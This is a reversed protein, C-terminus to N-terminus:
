PRRESGDTSEFRRHMLAQSDTRWKRTVMARGNKEATWLRSAWQQASACIYAIDEWWGRSETQTFCNKLWRATLAAAFVSINEIYALHLTFATGTIRRDYHTCLAPQFLRDSCLRLVLLFWLKGYYNIILIKNLNLIETSLTSVM